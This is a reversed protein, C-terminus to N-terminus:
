GRLPLIHQPLSTQRCLPCEAKERCWDGICTWCFVHGCTTASPDKMEELCLTCKRQQRGQIWQMQDADHLDYRSTTLVPTHTVQDIGKKSQGLPMTDYAMLLPRGAHQVSPQVELEVAGDVVISDNAIPGATAMASAPAGRELHRMHLWGQVIMQTVLLVGLVEYGERKEHPELRKTFIYRLGWVRKGLHYYAGTFYFLALSLAYIPSPSTITDLHELLYAQIRAARCVGKVGEEGDQREPGEGTGGGRGAWRRLNWELKARVRSRLAPLFRTLAYPLLVSTVIYGARSRLRPMMRSGAEVQVVDCYEEGLTRNGVLTTLALYLTDAVTSTAAGYAHAFRAGYLRRLIGSLHEVMEAQFYADKQHSRIIDPASAFPYQYEHHSAMTGRGPPTYADDDPTDREEM